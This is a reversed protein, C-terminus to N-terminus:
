ALEEALRAEAEELSLGHRLRMTAVGVPAPYARGPAGERSWTSSSRSSRGARRRTRSGQSTASTAPRATSSSSTARRGALDDPERPRARPAGDHLDLAREAGDERRHPHAPGPPVADGAVELGVTLARRRSAGGDATLRELAARRGVAIVAATPGPRGPGLSSARRLGGRAWCPCTGSRSWRRSATAPAPRASRSATSASGSACCSAGASRACSRARGRSPKRTSSRM